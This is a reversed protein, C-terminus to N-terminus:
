MLGAKKLADKFDDDSTWSPVETVGLKFRKEIKEMMRNDEAGCLLNFVAGKRGFRGARSIRRLYSQYDPQTSNCTLVPLDYNVVLNVGSCSFWILIRTSGYKFEKILKEQEKYSLSGKVTAVAYGDNVLAEHLMEVGKIARVFIIAQWVGDGLELIKDKIVMIKSLEDDVNVKYQKVSGLSLKQKKVFLQRFEPVFVDNELTSVFDKVADSFTASFLQVQCKPNRRDVEEIIRVAVHKYAALMFDVEEFVLIKLDSISLKNAAIMQDVTGPSGIIVQATLPARESPPVYCDSIVSGVPLCLDSTIGTFKGMNLLVEMNEAALERTPCICLAQPAPLTPDVRSLIGLVSCTTKGSCTPAQAILNQYPPTLIKPMSMSQIKSPRVFKMDEYLAKMLEPSLNFDEFGAQINHSDEENEEVEIYFDNKKKLEDETEADSDEMCAAKFEDLRAMFKTLFDVGSM